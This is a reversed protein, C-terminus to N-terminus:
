QARWAARGTITTRDAGWSSCSAEGCHGRGFRSPLGARRRPAESGLKNESLSGPRLAVETVRSGAMAAVELVGGDVGVRNVWWPFTDWDRLSM